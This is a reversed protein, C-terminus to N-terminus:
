VKPRLQQGGTAGVQPFAIAEKDQARIFEQEDISRPRLTQSNVTITLPIISTDRGFRRWVNFLIPAPNPERASVARNASSVRARGGASLGSADRSGCKLARALRTIKRKM